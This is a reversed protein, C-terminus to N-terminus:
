KINVLILAIIIMVISIKEKKTLEEKFFMQSCISIVLISGASFVPLAVSTKVYNFAMILFFSTFLNPVGVLFGVILDKNTIKKNKIITFILSIIFATFFVFFLFLSKYEILAYKQFIKNSFESIGGFIFLLLLSVRLDKIVEKSFSVNVIIIAVISLLIGFWQILTPIENWFIISLAMPVLVGLKSFTGALGVGNERVSKQYYIFSLFFFVGAIIGVIIAWIISSQVSFIGKNHLVVKKTDNLFTTISYVEKFTILRDKISMLLSVSFATLYNVTTVAYRNVRNSESYKFILAISASCIISLFLYVM